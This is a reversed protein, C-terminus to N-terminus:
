PFYNLVDNPPCIASDCWSFFRTALDYVARWLIGEIVDVIGDETTYFIM